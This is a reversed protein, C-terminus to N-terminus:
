DLLNETFFNLFPKKFVGGKNGGITNGKKVCPDDWSYNSEPKVTGDDNLYISPCTTFVQANPEYEPEYAGEFGHGWGKKTTVEIDAGNEKLKKGYEICPAALTVDDKEGNVMWIKTEKIPQPNEFFLGGWCSVNRPQSAAYYLDKSILVDRLRKETIYLSNMGGRSWGTIGVKKINIKPDKSLYELAMFADVYGAYNSVQYQDDYTHIAGRASFNDLFMIAFGKKRLQKAMQKNFKFWKSSFQGPGGSAHSFVVLPYPAEGKKPYAILADINIPSKKYSGDLISVAMNPWPAPNFSPIKVLEGGKFSKLLKDLSTKLPAAAFANGSLLLGLVIIGLIKKM